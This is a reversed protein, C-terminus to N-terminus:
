KREKERERRRKDFSYVTIICVNECDDIEIVVYLDKSVSKEHPYILKFRNEKTKNIGLPMENLLCNNVYNFDYGREFWNDLVHPTNKISQLNQSKLIRQVDEINYDMMHLDCRIFM